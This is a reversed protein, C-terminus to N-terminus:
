QANGQKLRVELAEERWRRVLTLGENVTVWYVDMLDTAIQFLDQSKTQIRGGGLVDNEVMEMLYILKLEIVNIEPLSPIATGVVTQLRESQHRLKESQQRTCRLVYRLKRDHHYDVSGSATIFTSLGRTKAIQEIMAPLEKAVFNLVEIQKFIQPYSVSEYSVSEDNELPKEGPLFKEGALPKELVKALGYVIAQLQEIFHSHLEFNDSLKDEQWDQRITQWSLCLSEEQRSTILEPSRRIFAQLVAIRRDLQHQLIGFDGRFDMNGAILAMTMGRHKQVAKIVQNLQSILSLADERRRYDSCLDDFSPHEDTSTISKLKYREPSSM